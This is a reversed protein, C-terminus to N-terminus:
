LASQANELVCVTAAKVNATDGVLFYSDALAALVRTLAKAQDAPWREFWPALAEAHDLKFDGLHPKLQPTTLCQMLFLLSPRLRELGDFIADALEAASLGACTSSLERMLARLEESMRHVAARLVAEKNEYYTYVQSASLGVRGAIEAVTTERYGKELFTTIASQVIKERKVPDPRRGM